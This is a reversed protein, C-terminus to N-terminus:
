LGHDHVHHDELELMHPKLQTAMQNVQSMGCNGQGQENSAECDGNTGAATSTQDGGLIADTVAATPHLHPFPLYISHVIVNLNRIMDAVKIAVYNIRLQNKTIGEGVTTVVLSQGRDLTPLTTGVPLRELDAVTLFQNPVIHFRVSHIYAYSGSFISVDDLGFITVNILPILEPYKVKMALSLVSFGNNRLRLM